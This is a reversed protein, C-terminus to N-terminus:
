LLFLGKRRRDTGLRRASGCGVVIPQGQVKLWTAVHLAQVAGIAPVGADACWALFDAVARGYARRTHPNRIKAAVIELFRLSTNEGAAKVLQPLATAATLTVARSSALM